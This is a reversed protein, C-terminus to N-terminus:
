PQVRVLVGRQTPVGAVQLVLEHEGPPLQPVRLNFQYVGIQTSLGAFEVVVPVNGLTATMGTALLAPAGPVTGAPVDPLTAGFGTGYVVLV